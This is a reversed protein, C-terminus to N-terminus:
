SKSSAVYTPITHTSRGVVQKPAYISSEGKRKKWFVCPVITCVPPNRSQNIIVCLLSTTSMVSGCRVACNKGAFCTSCCCGRTLANHVYVVVTSTSFLTILLNAIVQTRNPLIYLFRSWFLHRIYTLVLGIETKPNNAISTSM